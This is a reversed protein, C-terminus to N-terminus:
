PSLNGRPDLASVSTPENERALAGRVVAALREVATQLDAKGLHSFSLRLTNRGNDGVHFPAGRVYSVGAAIAAPRMAYADLERPLTLWTLFGGAPETGGTEKPMHRELAASLATWHSAYLARAAAEPVMARVAPDVVPLTKDGDSLASVDIALLREVLDV